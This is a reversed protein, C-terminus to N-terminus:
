GTQPAADSPAGSGRAFGHSSPTGPGDPPSQLGDPGADLAARRALETERTPVRAIVYWAGIAVLLAIGVAIAPHDVGFVVGLTAFVLMTAVATAKARRSMGLGARYDCVLPGVHPLELVWREFRPSSRAFCSAAVVFFVTTPLGPVVIGIAGVGVSSWGAGFWMVRALRSGAVVPDAAPM